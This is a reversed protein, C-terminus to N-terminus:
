NLSFLSLCLLIFLNYVYLFRNCIDDNYTSPFSILFVCACMVIGLSILQENLILWLIACFNFQSFSQSVLSYLSIIYMYFAIASIMGMRQNLPFLFFVCPCMVIDLSILQIFNMGFDCLSKGTFEGCLHGTVCNINGNSSTMMNPFNLRLVCFM